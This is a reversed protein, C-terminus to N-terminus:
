DHLHFFFVFFVQEKQGVNCCHTAELGGIMAGLALISGIWGKDSETIPFESNEAPDELRTLAPSSWGVAAGFVMGSLAAAFAAFVQHRLVPPLDGPEQLADVSLMSDAFPPVRHASREDLDEELFDEDGANEKDEIDHDIASAM